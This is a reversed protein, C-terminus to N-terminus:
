MAEWRMERHYPLIPRVAAAEPGAAAVPGAAATYCSYPTSCGEDVYVTNKTKGSGGHIAWPVCHWSRGAPFGYIAFCSYGM